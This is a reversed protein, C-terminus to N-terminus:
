SSNNSYNLLWQEFECHLTKDWENRETLQDFRSSNTPLPTRVPYLPYVFLPSSLLLISLIVFLNNM